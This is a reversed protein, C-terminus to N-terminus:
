WEYKVSLTANRGPQNQGSGHIRYDEDTLNEFAFNLALADSVQWAAYISATIYGPTGNVPIRQTDLADLASLNDQRDAAQIRGSIWYRKKPETWKLTIAGNLPHLRRITDKVGNTRQRGDQWSAHASLQWNPHFDWTAQAEFGYLYGDSGNTTSLGGSNNIIRVIGDDILTHYASLQFFLGRYNFRTGLESTLYTEPDLDPSGNSDLGNLAFQRGTLDDLNPARFAQSAGGFITWQDNLQYQGRLTFSLNDWSANGSQDTTAGDPRFGDWDAASYTYRAGINYTIRDGLSGAYNAFIGLSDYTADDAVPRNSPLAIGNRFGASSVEDHYYDAGWTLNGSQAQLTLGYTDVDIIREDARGSARVRFESDQSKQFSLTSQWSDLWSLNSSSDEIRLYSLSREQDLDRVLDTGPTTFSRGRTWGPNNITSHFRSIGDQDLFNHALTLTRTESFAYQFKLDYSYERFGTGNLRGLAPDRIDGIDKLSIGATFGWLGGVGISRERRALHSESNTDFRYYTSDRSFLGEKERFDTPKSLVNVTGGIADSGYLVSGQSKILEVRSIAQSDLTNWYQVPGNRWTSNNLRIGDQLLLNQRGTFGRIFPSGQAPTTQQVLVGPTNLFAQPLTRSANELLDEARLVETTYPLERVNESIRNATIVLEPLTEQSLLSLPSLILPFFKHM